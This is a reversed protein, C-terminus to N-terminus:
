PIAGSVAKSERKMVMGYDQPRLETFSPPRGNGAAGNRGGADTFVVSLTDRELKYIAIYNIANDRGNHWNMALPSAKVDVSIGWHSGNGGDADNHFTLRDKEVKMYLTGRNQLMNRGAQHYSVVRWTGALAALDPVKLVKPKPAPAFGCLCAALALTLVARLLNM